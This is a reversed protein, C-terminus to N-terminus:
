AMSSHLREHYKTEFYKSSGEVVDDLAIQVDGFLIIETACLISFDLKGCTWTYLQILKRSIQCGGRAFQQLPARKM